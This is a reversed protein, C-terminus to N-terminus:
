GIGKLIDTRVILNSKLNIMKTGKMVSSGLPVESVHIEQVGDTTVVRIIDNDNVGYISFISDSSDLKIVSTGSKARESSVLGESRFRNIKGNRTIVIINNADPYIVSLGEIDDKVNMAKSGAANRKFLPLSKTPCRLAKHGSYIIVDLDVPVLAVDAIEDDDLVKSYMLGSVNVNLFDEIDLKKISNKKSVVTLYHKRNGEAIKKLVPEYIVSIIDSTLNKQLVRIDTGSGAKDTVPIKYVPLKFVKGKNDFILLSEANDVRLIFKPNDKKVVGVKDTDPIKRVYNGETIVVKFTGRPINNDDTAKIVRCLRPSGYKNAIAELEKDIENMIITSSQDTVAEEYYKQNKVLEALEEKYKNLYAKSLKRIDTGLIFKAQLDTLDVKKILYEVVYDDEIHTQKRVMNIVNDIEGSELLKIYAILQHYRTLSVQLKNCYLRFKTTARLKLFEKVYETYSMRKPNVGHVVMFNVSVTDQVQTKAYLVEKVYGPDSGKRLQIIIEVNGNASADSIDKIMPLQKKEIMELLKKVIVDTTVRDPLSRVILAPDGKFETVEVIGRVKYSGSGTRSIERFDTEIINCPLCHDPVLVVEHDPDKIVARVENVVEILNHPPINVAMGVGIGFSGNILLLPVKVPLFEPEVTKRDYNPIWDVINEHEKLDGIVCEMGFESLGAETYRMAAPGDGMITGWNGKPAILPMKCKFWNALPEMTGYISSNHICAMPFMSSDTNGIPILMNEPGVVTFDYMPENDTPEIWVKAIIPKLKYFCNMYYGFLAMEVPEEDENSIYNERNIKQGKLVIRDFVEFMHNMQPSCNDSEVLGIMNSNMAILKRMAVMGPKIDKAQLYSKDHMMIPHNSTCVIEGGNSFVIHYKENTYQGIRFDSAVAKIVNGSSPDVSLIELSEVHNEYLEGITYTKGDLGLLLTNAQNCEGHGHFLKMTDGVIASSKIRKGFSTAHQKYMDYIVRRQVPKLADRDEPLSRRRDVIISYKVMDQEYSDLVDHELIRSTEEKNSTDEAKPQKKGVM